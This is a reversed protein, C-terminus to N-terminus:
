SYYSAFDHNVYAARVAAPAVADSRCPFPRDLDGPRHGSPFFCRAVLVFWRTGWVQLPFAVSFFHGLRRWTPRGTGYLVAGSAAVRNTLSAKVDPDSFHAQAYALQGAARQHLRSLERVEEGSLHKARSTLESLRDWTARNDAMFRDIDVTAVTRPRRPPAQVRPFTCAVVLPNTVGSATTSSRGVALGPVRTSARAM